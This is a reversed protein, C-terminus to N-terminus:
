IIHISSLASSFSRMFELANLDITNSVVIRNGHVHEFYGLSSNTYVIM